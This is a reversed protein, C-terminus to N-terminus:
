SRLRFMLIVAIAVGIGIGIGATKVTKMHKEFFNEQVDEVAAEGKSASYGAAAGMAGIFTAIAGGAIIPWIGMVFGDGEKPQESEDALKKEYDGKVKVIRSNVEFWFDQVIERFMKKVSSMSEQDAGALAAITVLSNALRWPTEIDPWSPTNQFEFGSYDAYFLPADVVSESESNLFADYYFAEREGFRQFEADWSRLADAVTVKKSSITSRLHALSDMASDISALILEYTDRYPRGSEDAAIKTLGYIDSRLKDTNFSPIKM